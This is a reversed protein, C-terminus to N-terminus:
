DVDHTALTFEAGIKQQEGDRYTEAIHRLSNVTTQVETGLWQDVGRTVMVSFFLAVVLAPTVAALAFQSIFRARLRAGADGADILRITRGGVFAALVLILLLNVGMLGLILNISGNAAWRPALLIASLTLGAAVAFGLGLIGTPAGWSRLRALPNFGIPLGLGRAAKIAM